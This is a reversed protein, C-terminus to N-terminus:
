RSGTQQQPWRIQPFASVGLVSAALAALLMAVGVISYTVPDTASQKFLLPQVWRSALLALGCGIVVGIAAVRVGQMVVLRVVDSSRAGLAVRVGLEHMRQAVTYSIVGYLGVIAVVLALGGFAIFLASNDLAGLAAGVARGFPLFAVNVGVLFLFLGLAAILTGNLIDRVQRLPLKLLFLQFVLFLAGLPVVAIVVSWATNAIEDVLTGSM